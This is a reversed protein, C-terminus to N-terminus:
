FPNPAVPPPSICHVFYTNTYFYHTPFLKCHLPCPWLIVRKLSAIQVTAPTLFSPTLYINSLSTGIPSVFLCFAFCFFTNLFFCSIPASIRFYSCLRFVWCTLFGCSSCFWFLISLSHLLTGSRLVVSEM